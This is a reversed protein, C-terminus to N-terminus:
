FVTATVAFSLDARIKVERTIVEDVIAETRITYADGQIYPKLNVDTVNLLLESGVESPIDTKFALLVEPADAASIFIKIENLFSFTQDQPSTISLRMSKLKAEKVYKAQTNNTAFAQQSSTQVEPSSITIPVHSILSQSPITIEVSDNFTFRLLDEVKGCGATLLLAALVVIGCGSKLKICYM